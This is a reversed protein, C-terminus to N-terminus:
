RFKYILGPIIVGENYQLNFSIQNKKKEQEKIKAYRHYNNVVHRGTLYGFMAGALVDTFWHKNETIRSLGILTAASYAIIPILPQDRYELAFVTAASFAATTHGSPFSANLRTGNDDRSGSFGPGNFTPKQEAGTTKYYNPRQRGFLKKLVPSIAATTIYSQTALLTTTQLKVNKFLFGASGLGVLVMGEYLGGFKTVNKSIGKLWDNHKNLKASYRQIPKDVM